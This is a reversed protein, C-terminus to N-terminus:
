RKVVYVVKNIGHGLVQSITGFETEAGVTENAYDITTIDKAFSEAEDRTEADITAYIELTGTCCVEYKPM